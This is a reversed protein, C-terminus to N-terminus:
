GIRTARPVMDGLYWASRRSDITTFSSPEHAVLPQYNQGAVM